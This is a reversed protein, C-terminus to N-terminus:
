VAIDPMRKKTEKATEFEVIFVFIEELISFVPRRFGAASCFLGSWHQCGVQTVQDEALLACTRAVFGHGKELAVRLVGNIGDMEGGLVAGHFDQVIRKGHNIPLGLAKCARAFAVMVPHREGPGPLEGGNSRRLVGWVIRLRTFYDAGDMCGVAADGELVRQRPNVDLAPDVKLTNYM